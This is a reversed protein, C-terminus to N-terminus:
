FDLTADNFFTKSLMTKEFNSILSLRKPSNPTKNALSTTIAKGIIKKQESVSRV